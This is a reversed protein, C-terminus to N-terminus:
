VALYVIFDLMKEPLLVCMSGDEVELFCELYVFEEAVNVAKGIRLLGPDVERTAILFQPRSNTELQQSSTSETTAYSYFAFLSTM